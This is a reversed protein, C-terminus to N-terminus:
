ARLKFSVGDRAYLCVDAAVEEADSISGEVKSLSNQRFTKIARELRLVANSPAGALVKNIGGILEASAEASLVPVILVALVGSAFVEAGIRKLLAADRRDSPLRQRAQTPPCQVICLRVAPYRTILDAPRVSYSGGATPDYGGLRIVLGSTSDVPNGLIRLAGVEPRVREFEQSNRAFTDRFNGGWREGSQLLPADGWTLVEVPARWEPQTGVRQERTVRRVIFPSNRLGAKTGIMAEWPAAASWDDVTLKVDIMSSRLLRFILSAVKSPRTNPYVDRFVLAYREELSAPLASDRWDFVALTFVRIRTRRVGPSALPRNVDAPPSDYVVISEVRIVRAYVAFLLEFLKPLQSIVVLCAVFLLVRWPQSIPIGFYDLAAGYLFRYVAWLMASALALGLAGLLVGASGRLLRSTKSQASTRDPAGGAEAQSGVTVFELEPAVYAKGDVMAVDNALLWKALDERPPASMCALLRTIWPRWVAPKPGMAGLLNAASGNQAAQVLEEWRPLRSNREALGAYYPRAEHALKMAQQHDGERASWMAKILLAQLCSLDDSRDLAHRFAQEAKEPTV